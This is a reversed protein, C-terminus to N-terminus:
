YYGGKNPKPPPLSAKWETHSAYKSPKVYYKRVPDKSRDRTAARDKNFDLEAQERGQKGKYKDRNQKRYARFAKEKARQRQRSDKSEARWAKIRDKYSEAM